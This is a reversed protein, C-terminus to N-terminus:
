VMEKGELTGLRAYEELGLNCTQCVVGLADFFRNRGDFHTEFGTM